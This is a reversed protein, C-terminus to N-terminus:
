VARRLPTVRPETAAFQERADPLWLEASRPRGGFRSSVTVTARRSELYGHGQGIGTWGSGSITLMAEAQAWPGLVFLTAGRQRLRAALRSAAADAARKPARLVVVGMVDAVAATVTLWQDGPHPVLVLRELDIGFRSAAEVGFDPVGVVGCWRGSASPAALLLMLLMLSSPVSYAVGQKLGGGPLLDAIAPHTPILKEGLTTAQMSRIRARLQDISSDGTESVAKEPVAKESVAPDVSAAPMERYEFMREFIDIAVSM